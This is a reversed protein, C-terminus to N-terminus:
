KINFNGDMDISDFNFSEIYELFKYKKLFEECVEKQEAISMSSFINKEANKNGSFKAAKIKKPIEPIKEGDLKKFVTEM